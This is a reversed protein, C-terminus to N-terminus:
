CAGEQFFSEDQRVSRMLFRGSLSVSSWHIENRIFVISQIKKNEQLQFEIELMRIVDNKIWQESMTLAKKTGCTIPPLIPLTRNGEQRM